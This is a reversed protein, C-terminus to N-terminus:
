QGGQGAAALLVKSWIPRQWAFGEDVSLIAIDDRGTGTAWGEAEDRTAFFHIHRCFASWIAEVSAMHEPSPDVLVLSVVAGAPSVEEVREPSVRLRILQGSVPSPSAITATQQLVAPLFLTDEACWASLAVGDVSVQHPHDQLSLGLAGVVQDSADRETVQRLFQRAADPAIGLNAICGDVQAAPLPRGHALERMVRVLLRLHNPGYELLRDQLKRAMDEIRADIRAVRMTTYAHYTHVGRHMDFTGEWRALTTNLWQYSPSETRFKVVAPMDWLHPQRPDPVLGYGRTEFEVKAGDDTSIVGVISTECIRGQVEFISWQVQGQLRAGWVTGDGSGLLDGSRSLREHSQVPPANPRYHLDAQFFQQSSTM